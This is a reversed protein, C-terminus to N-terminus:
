FPICDDEWIKERWKEMAFNKAEEKSAFSHGGPNFDRNMYVTYTPRKNNDVSCVVAPMDENVARAVELAENLTGRMKRTIESDRVGYFHGGAAEPDHEIIVPTNKGPIPKEPVRIPKSDITLFASGVIIIADPNKIDETAMEFREAMAEFGANTLSDIIMGRVAEARDTLVTTGSLVKHVNIELNTAVNYERTSELASCLRERRESRDM